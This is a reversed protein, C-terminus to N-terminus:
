GSARRSSPPRSAASLPEESRASGDAAPAARDAGAAVPQAARAAYGALASELAADVSPLPWGRESALARMPGGGDCASHAGDPEPPPLGLREAALGALELLSRPAAPGLHWVGREGDILLDLAADILQPLHCPTVQHEAVRLSRGDRLGSLIHALVDRPSEPDLCSSSRVLLADPFAQLMARELEVWTEGHADAPRAPDSEVYPRPSWGDFVAASSLALVGPRTAAAACRELLAALSSGVDPAPLTPDFAFVLAAQEPDAALVARAALADPALTCRFRRRCLAAVREGFTHHGIVLVGPGSAIAELTAASAPHLLRTSRRWWGGGRAIPPTPDEGSSLRQAMSALATARPAPGRVDYAGPEYDGSECTVLNNWGVAGFASWVTVARVDAGLALAARAGDWAERLWRLQDERHCALHVETLACPARYREWVAMLVARHGVIGEARARVAEVDAYSQRGNSGWTHPPYLELRSDLWRDSTVYYNIGILDPACPEACLKDLLRGSVGHAELERRLPHAGDVRGFLLDLSLWRRENEYRRQEELDPTSFVTTIDETQYLQANPQFRRIARMSERTALVENVLARYFAGLEKAHPYWHGYLTSFRATTLPENVPTYATVWPYRAAVNAAFAGLGPAFGPDCLSTHPPGSGHHVLGIIPAVGLADLRKLRADSWAFALADAEGRPATREWLVPFRVARAGLAVLREIDDLRSAHGTRELQDFYLEGVRNVTCEAGAWLALERGASSARPVQAAVPAENGDRGTHDERAVERTMNM